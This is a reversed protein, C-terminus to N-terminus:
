LRVLIKGLRSVMQHSLKGEQAQSKLFIKVKDQPYPEEKGFIQLENLFFPVAEQVTTEVQRREEWVRFDLQYGRSYLLNLIFIVHAPWTPIEEGYVGRWLEEMISSQRRGAFQSIFCYKKACLLAKHITEWNNIGPTMSAFVLDFEGKLGQAYLDVEEWTDQIVKINTIRGKEIQEELFAVMNEAPELAVVQGVKEAFALSFPGPGAGIDLVKAGELVVGQAALWQIVTNVRNIGKESMVNDTFNDARRNWFDVTDKLTKDKKKFISEKNAREWAKEWFEPSKLQEPDPTHMSIM